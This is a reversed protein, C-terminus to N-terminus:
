RWQFSTQSYAVNDAVIIDRDNINAVAYAHHDPEEYIAHNAITSSQPSQSRLVRKNGRLIIVVLTAIIGFSVLIIFALAASLGISIGRYSIGINFHKVTHQM